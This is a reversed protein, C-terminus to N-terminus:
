KLALPLKTKSNNSSKTPGDNEKTTNNKVEQKSSTENVININNNDGQQYGLIKNTNNVKSNEKNSNGKNTVKEKTTFYIPIKSFDNLSRRNIAKKNSKEFNTSPIITSHRKYTKPQQLKSTIKRLNVKVDDTINTTTSQLTDIEKKSLGEIESENSVVLPIPLNSNLFNSDTDNHSTLPINIGADVYFHQKLFNM